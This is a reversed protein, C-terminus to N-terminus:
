AARRCREDFQYARRSPWFFELRMRLVRDTFRVGAIADLSDAGSV